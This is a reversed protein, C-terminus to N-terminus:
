VEIAVEYSSLNRDAVTVMIVRAYIHCKCGWAEGGYGPVTVHKAPSPHDRKSTSRTSSLIGRGGGQEGHSRTVEVVGQRRLGEM